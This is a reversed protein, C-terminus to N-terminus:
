SEEGGELVVTVDRTGLTADQEVSVACSILTESIFTVNSVIIGEGSVKVNLEDGDEFGDGVVDM